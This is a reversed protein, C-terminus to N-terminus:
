LYTNVEVQYKVMVENNQDVGTMVNAVGKDRNLPDTLTDYYRFAKEKDMFCRSLDKRFKENTPLSEREGYKDKRIYIIDVEWHRIEDSFDGGIGYLAVKDNRKLLTYPLGNMRFHTKITKM